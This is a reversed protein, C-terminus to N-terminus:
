RTRIRITYLLSVRPHLRRQPLSITILGARQKHRFEMNSRLSLFLRVFQGASFVAIVSL